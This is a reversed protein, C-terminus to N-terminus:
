LSSLLLSVVVVEVVLQVKEAAAVATQFLRGSSTRDDVDIYSHPLDLVFKQSNSCCSKECV